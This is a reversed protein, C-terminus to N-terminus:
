FLPGNSVVSAARGDDLKASGGNARARGRQRCTKLQSNRHFVGTGSVIKKRTCEARLATNILHNVARMPHRVVNQHPRAVQKRSAVSASSPHAEPQYLLDILWRWHPCFARALFARPVSRFLQDLCGIAVAFRLLHEAALNSKRKKANM